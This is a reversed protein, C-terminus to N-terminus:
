KARELIEVLRWRKNKSLPRTEQVRVRDGINLTNEEDHVHLKKNRQVTKAYRRHRVRDITEVVATKDMKDSVVIGERVKRANERTETEAM